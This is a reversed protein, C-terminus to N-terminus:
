SITVDSEAHLLWSSGTWIVEAYGYQPVTFTNGQLFKSPATPTVTVAGTNINVIRVNQGAVTGDPLPAAVATARNYINLPTNINVPTTAGTSVTTGYVLSSNIKVHGNGKTSLVMSIDSDDGVTSLTVDTASNSLNLNNTASVVSTFSLLENANSDLLAGTILPSVIEQNAANVLLTGNANPLSVTRNASLTGSGLSIEFLGGDAFIINDSDFRLGPSLFAGDAQGGIFNYLEAFNANIKTIADRLSDGTGDNAVTGTNLINRPM